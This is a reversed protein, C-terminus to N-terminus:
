LLILLQDISKVDRDDETNYYLGDDENLEYYVWGSTSQIVNGYADKYTGNEMLSFDALSSLPIRFMYISANYEPNKVRIPKRQEQTNKTSNKPLSEEEYKKSPLKTDKDVDGGFIDFAKDVLQFENLEDDVPNVSDREKKTIGLLDLVTNMDLTEKEGYSAFTLYDGLLKEKKTYERGYDAM